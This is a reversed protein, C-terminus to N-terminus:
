GHLQTDVLIYVCVSVSLCVSYFYLTCTVNIPTINSVTITVVMTVSHDTSYMIDFIYYNYCPCLPNAQYTAIGLASPM